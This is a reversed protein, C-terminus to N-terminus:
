PADNPVQLKTAYYKFHNIVGSQYPAKMAIEYMHGRWLIKDPQQNSESTTLETDTYIKVVDSTRRGEPLVLLEQGNVPQVSGYVTVVTEAGDVWEGRAYGGPGQRLVTQASRFGM